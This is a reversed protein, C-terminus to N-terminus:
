KLNKIKRAPNGVVVEKKNVNKRVVAGMGIISNNGVKVNNDISANPALWCDSGIECKGSLICGATIQSRKKIVVNHGIQVLDDILVDEEVITNDLSGREISVNSGIWSGNGIKIGGIHPFHIYKNKDHSFGFGESGITTNSKIVCNSGIIVKGTIVVNNLIVTNKGIKVDKEIYTNAGVNVNNGLLKKNEIIATSHIYNKKREVFFTNMIRQFDYRPNKTILKPCNIKKSNKKDTIIIIKSSKNLSSLNYRKEFSLNFKKNITDTLFSIHFNKVDTIPTVGQIKFDKFNIKLGLFKAINSAKINTKKKLFM